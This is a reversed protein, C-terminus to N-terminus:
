PTSLEDSLGTGLEGAMGCVGVCSVRHGPGLGSGRGVFRESHSSRTESM